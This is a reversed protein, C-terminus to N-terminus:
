LDNTLLVLTHSTFNLSWCFYLAGIYIIDLQSIQRLLHYLCFTRKTHLYRCVMSIM